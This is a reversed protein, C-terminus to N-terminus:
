AGLSFQSIKLSRAERRKLTMKKKAQRREFRKRLATKSKRCKNKKQSVYQKQTCLSPARQKTRLPLCDEECFMGTETDTDSEESEDESSSPPPSFGIVRAEYFCWRICPKKEEDDEFEVYHGWKFVCSMPDNCDGLNLCENKRLQENRRRKAIRKDRRRSDRKKQMKEKNRGIKKKKGGEKHMKRSKWYKEEEAFYKEEQAIYDEVENQSFSLVSECDEEITLQETVLVTEAKPEEKSEVKRKAKEKTENEVKRLRRKEMRVKKRVSKPLEFKFFDPTKSKNLIKDVSDYERGFLENNIFDKPLNIGCKGNMREGRFLKPELFPVACLCESWIVPRNWGPIVPMNGNGFRGRKYEDTEFWRPWGIVEFNKDDVLHLVLTTHWEDHIVLFVTHNDRFGSVMHHGKRCFGGYTREYQYIDFDNDPPGYRIRLYNIRVYGIVFGDEIEKLCMAGGNTNIQKYILGAPLNQIRSKFQYEPIIFSWCGDIIPPPGCFDSLDGALDPGLADIYAFNYLQKKRQYLKEGSQLDQIHRGILCSVHAPHIPFEPLLEFSSAQRQLRTFEEVDWGRTKEMLYMRLIADELGQSWSLWTEVFTLTEEKVRIIEGSLDCLARFHKSPLYEILTYTKGGYPSACAWSLECRDGVRLHTSPQLPAEKSYIYEIINLTNQNNM